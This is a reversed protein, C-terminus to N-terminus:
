SLDRVLSIMRPATIERTPALHGSTTIIRTCHIPDALSRVPIFTVSTSKASHTSNATYTRGLTGPFSLDIAAVTDDGDQPASAVQSAIINGQDDTVTTSVRPIYYGEAVYDFDTEAYVSVIQSSSDWEVSTWGSIEQASAPAVLGLAVLVVLASFALFKQMTM